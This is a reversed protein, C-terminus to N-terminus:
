ELSQECIWALYSCIFSADYKCLQLFIAKFDWGLNSRLSYLRCRSTEHIRPKRAERNKRKEDSRWSNILTSPNFGYFNVEVAVNCLKAQFNILQGLFQQLINEWKQCVRHNLFIRRLKQFPYHLRWYLYFISYTSPLDECRQSAIVNEVELVKM